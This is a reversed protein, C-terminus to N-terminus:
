QGEKRISKGKIGAARARKENHEKVNNRRTKGMIGATRARDENKEQLANM